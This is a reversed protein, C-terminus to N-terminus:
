PQTFTKNTPSWIADLHGSYPYHTSLYDVYATVNGDNVVRVTGDGLDDLTPETYSPGTLYMPYYQLQSWGSTGSFDYAAFHAGNGFGGATVFQGSMFVKTSASPRVINRVLANVGNGSGGSYGNSLLTFKFGSNYDWELNFVNNVSTGGSTLGTVNASYYITGNYMMYIVNNGGGDNTSFATSFLGGAIFNTQSGNLFVGANMSGGNVSYIGNQTNAMATFNTDTFDIAFIFVGPTAARGAVASILLLITFTLVKLHNKHNKM